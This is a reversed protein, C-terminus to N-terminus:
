GAPPRPSRAPGKAGVARRRGEPGTEPPPGGGGAPWPPGSGRGGRRDLAFRAPTAGRLAIIRGDSGRSRALEAHRWSNQRPGLVGDGALVDIGIGQLDEVAQ